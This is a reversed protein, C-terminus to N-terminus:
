EGFSIFKVHFDNVKAPKLGPFCVVRKGNLPQLLGLYEPYCQFLLPFILILLLPVM